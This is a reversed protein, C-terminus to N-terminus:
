AADEAKRGADLDVKAQREAPPCWKAMSGENFICASCQARPNMCVYDEATLFYIRQHVGTPM